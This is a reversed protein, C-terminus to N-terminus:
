PLGSYDARARMAAVDAEIRSLLQTFRPEARVSAFLPDIALTRGDRWGAAYARDLEDLAAASQGRLAHIAGNQVFVMPWDAGALLSKRNAASIEDLIKAAESTSGSRQLHYAHALKVPYPANHFLGDAARALLSRVVEPADATGAFTFIEARTLLVEINNPAKDAAARIREVAAQPQGRRLDLFALLIQLRMANPSRTAGVTLIRETRADDDLCLLAVGVHYGGLTGGALQGARKAYTLAEDCHGAAVESFSIDTLGAGYSPNLEIAKRHARLAEQLRGVQHLNMALGHHASALQPDIKLARQAADM